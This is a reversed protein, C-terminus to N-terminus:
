RTSLDRLIVGRHVGGRYAVLRWALEVALRRGAATWLRSRFPKGDGGTVWEMVADDRVLAALTRGIAWDDAHGTLKKFGASVGIV